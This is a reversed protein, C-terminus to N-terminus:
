GTCLHASVPVTACHAQAPRSHLWFSVTSERLLAALRLQCTLRQVQHAAHNGKRGGQATILLREVAHLVWYNRLILLTAHQVCSPPLDCSAFCASSRIPPM